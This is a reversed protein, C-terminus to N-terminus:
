TRESEYGFTHLVSSTHSSSMVSLIAVSQTYSILTFTEELELRKTLDPDIFGFPGACYSLRGFPSNTHLESDVLAKPTERNPASASSGAM